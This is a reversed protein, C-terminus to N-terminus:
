QKEVRIVESRASDSYKILYIGPTLFDLNLHIVNSSVPQATILKGTIDTVSVAAENEMQGNITITLKDTVPNPHANVSFLGLRMTAIVTKSYSFGGSPDVLKLRYYNEGTLPNEDWYTYFSAQGRADIVALKEFISGDASRELEFYDGRAETGTSWDIRNRKGANAASIDNLHIALPIGSVQVVFPNEIGLYGYVRVYYTGAALNTATITETGIAPQDQCDIATFTGCSGSLLELVVDGVTNTATITVNGTATTTFMYWVDNAFTTSAACTGSAMSQWAGATTGNYPLGSTIDVAATCTDNSPVTYFVHRASWISTDGAGCVSRVFYSYGTTHNLGTITFPRTNVNVLTGTGQAFNVSGYEIQWLTASGNESWNLTASTMTTSDTLNNPAICTPPTFEYAGIDPTTLNRPAGTIDTTVGLPSPQNNIQPNSPTFDGPLPSFLPDVSKSNQDWANSNATQWGGPGSLTAFGSGFYGVYNTGAPANVYINNYDSTKGANTFYLGYKTGTGGRTIVINNNRLDIATTGTAYIGYTTGGSSVPTNMVLTNHYAQVYDAGTLYLGAHTGSAGQDYVLNNIIKNENGATGDSSVYIAYSVSTSSVSAADFLNHIRNKEVLMNTTGTTLYVGYGSSVVTRDPRTFENGSIVAGSQYYSYAGYVYYNKVTCNIINNAENTGSSIGYFVFGFYGGDTTCNSFTNNSGNTGTTSYSTTSGSMSVCAVTTGTTTTDALFTCGNFTNNDSGNMMHLAFSNTTGTAEVVLNNITIYDAGNFNLTAFNTSSGGFSLTDGNGNITITNTSSVGPVAAINVQETYKTTLTSTVNFTVPGGIGCNLAAVAASFSQFNTASAPMDANITYAGPAMVSTVTVTMVNSYDTLGGPNNCTVAVRYDMSGTLAATTYTTGIAGSIPQFNNQGAPSEEWQYSIGLDPSSGTLTMTVTGGTCVNPAPATITGTAPSGSCQPAATVNIVYDETERGISINSCAGASGYLTTTSAVNRIRLGTYGPVATFPVTIAISSATSAPMLTYESADFTGNQDWDIWVECRYSASSVAANLTYTQGQMLTATNAPVTYNAQTYGGAGVAGTSHNLPTGTINVNTIYNGTSGHLTTGTLPSCYCLFFPNIGITVPSTYDIGGGNVCSLVARYDTPASVTPVFTANSAGTVTSWSGSGAPAEEWQISIGAGSSFGSLSLAVTSGQCVSGSAANITGATPSGTCIPVSFEYAGMDPTTLSRSAGNIDTLVNVQAGTNDLLYIGPTYDGAGAGDPFAPWRPMRPRIIAWMILGPPLMSMCTITTASREPIQLICATSPEQEQGRSRSTTIGSILEPRVQLMSAM